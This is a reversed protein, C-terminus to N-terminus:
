PGETQSGPLLPLAIVLASWCIASFYFLSFCLVLYQEFIVHPCSYAKIWVPSSFFFTSIQLTNIGSSFFHMFKLWAICLSSCWLMVWWWWWLCCGGGGFFYIYIHPPFAFVCEGVESICWGCIVHLNQETKNEWNWEIYGGDQERGANWRSWTKWLPLTLWGSRTVLLWTRTEFLSYLLSM